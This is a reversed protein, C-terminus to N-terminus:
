HVATGVDWIDEASGPQRCKCKEFGCMYCFRTGCVCMMSNCGESRSVIVHCGPCPRAHAKLWTQLTRDKLLSRLHQAYDASAHEKRRQLARPDVGLAEIEHDWLRYACGEAPCKIHIKHDNIAVETWMKMCSRCCAHGCPQSSWHETKRQIAFWVNSTDISGDAGRVVMPDMCIPCMFEKSHKALSMLADSYVSEPPTSTSEDRKTMLVEDVLLTTQLPSFKWGAPMGREVPKRDQSEVFKKRFGNVVEADFGRWRFATLICPHSREIFGLLIEASVKSEGQGTLYSVVACRTAAVDAEWTLYSVKARGAIMIEADISQWPALEFRQQARKLREKAESLEFDWGADLGVAGQALVRAKSSSKKTSPKAPLSLRCSTQAPLAALRGVAALSLPRARQFRLGDSRGVSAGRRQDLHGARLPCRRGTLQEKSGQLHGGVSASRACEDLIRHGGASFTFLNSFSPAHCIASM